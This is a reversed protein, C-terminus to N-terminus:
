LSLVCPFREFVFKHPVCHTVLEIVEVLMDSLDVRDLMGFSHGVVDEYSTAPDQGVLSILLISIDPCTQNPAVDVFRCSSRHMSQM